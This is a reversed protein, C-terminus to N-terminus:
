INETHFILNIAENWGAPGLLQTYMAQNAGLHKPYDAKPSKVWVPFDAVALMEADNQSDGLCILSLKEKSSPSLLQELFVIPKAKNTEGLIHLFRGGKLTSLNHKSLLYQFKTLAYETDEWILPESFHRDVSAAASSADLGTKEQIEELSWDSYGSFKFDHTARLGYIIDIITSREEGFIIQYHDELVSSNSLVLDHDAVFQKPFYLASGNEVIFPADLELQESIKKVENFTKSTNIIIPIERTKLQAIAPLAAEWSYSYHDLLTGDLDTVVLSSFADIKGETNKKTIKRISQDSNLWLCWDAELPMTKLAHETLRQYHSIFRELEMDSLTKVVATPNNVRNKEILKHEQTLRWQYVCNFSPANLVLQKDILSFLSPYENHLQDNVYTRWLGNQDEIRELENIPNLLDDPNQAELGVCWGELIIVDVPGDITQWTNQPARDNMSKDFRPVALSEGQQLNSLKQIVEKALQVDHTGPVGRTILLPHLNQSLDLRQQATLYFDDISLVATKLGFNLSLLVALFESATSKGSGQTGQVGLVFSQQDKNQKNTQVTHAIQEAIPSLWSNVVDLYSLPLKQEHIRDMIQTDNLAM